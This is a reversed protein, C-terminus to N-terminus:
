NNRHSTSNCYFQLGVLTCNTYTKTNKKWSTGPPSPGSTYFVLARHVTAQV